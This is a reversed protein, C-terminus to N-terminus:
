LTSQRSKLTERVCRLTPDPNKSSCCTDKLTRCASKWGLAIARPSIGTNQLTSATCRQLTRACRLTRGIRRQFTDACRRFSLARCQMACSSRLRRRYIAAHRPNTEVYITYMEVSRPPLAANCPYKEVSPTYMELSEALKEVNLGGSMSPARITRKRRDDRGRSPM